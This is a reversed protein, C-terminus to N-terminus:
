GARWRRRRGVARGAPPSTLTGRIARSAACSRTPTCACASTPLNTRAFPIAGAARMREVVPADVTAIAHEFAAVGQTTASGAVDINEKVTIPVGHLPGLEGGTAVARDAADAAAVAEPLLAVVANLDGNVADIRALLSELVERSSAEQKRVLDALDLASLQWLESM